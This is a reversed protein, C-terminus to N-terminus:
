ILSNKKSPKRKLTLDCCFPCRGQTRKGGLADGTQEQAVGKQERLQLQVSTLAADAQRSTLM